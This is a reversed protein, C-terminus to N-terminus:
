SRTSEPAPASGVPDTHQSNRSSRGVALPEELAAVFRTGPGLYQRRYPSQSVLFQRLQHMCGPGTVSQWTEHVQDKAQQVKGKAEQKANDAARGAANKQKAKDPNSVLHVVEATGASVATKIPFQKGDPLTLTDFTVEYKHFPSFDGNAYAMTRKVGSVPSISAIRGSVVGGAAIVPQDFAYVTEVIKGHIMEGPHDVRTRRDLAIRLPTGDPLMLTTSALLRCAM